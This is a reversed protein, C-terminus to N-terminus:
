RSVEENSPPDSRDTLMPGLLDRFAAYEAPRMVLQRCGGLHEGGTAAFLRFRVHAGNDDDVAVGFRVATM